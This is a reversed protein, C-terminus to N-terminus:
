LIDSTKQYAKFTFDFIGDTEYYYSQRYKSFKICAGQGKLISIYAFVTRQSVSLKRALDQPSGTAKKRILGHLQDLRNFYYVPM